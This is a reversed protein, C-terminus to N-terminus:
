DAQLAAALARVVEDQQQESLQHFLPISIATRYYLAYRAPQEQLRSLTPVAVTSIPRIVQQIPLLLLRYAVSYFGLTQAGWYWGILVKDLNRAFYNLFNFGALYGGFGLM